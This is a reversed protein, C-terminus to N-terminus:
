AAAEERKVRRRIDCRALKLLENSTLEQPGSPRLHTIQM